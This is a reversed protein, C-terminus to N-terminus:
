GSSIRAFGLRRRVDQATLGAERLDRLSEAGRSKALKEDGDRILDHHCYLPAPFALLVQLLRHLDTAHYLDMGRTIHTVNQFADDVVVSLHYSTPTDKRVIVADGWKEPEAPRETMTGELSFQSVTIPGTMARARANDVRWQHALGSALRAKREARSLHRCTGPYLPAGDPDTASAREAILKRTCFCPYLLDMAGLCDCAQAYAPFRQSQRLVPEPWTLGLWALDERVGLDFEPKCRVQDIDEMRLLVTGGLIEAARWTFLASYAHGLHLRGNPSPAFRLIPSMSMTM